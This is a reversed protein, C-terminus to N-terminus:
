PNSPRRGDKAADAHEEIQAMAVQFLDDALERLKKADARAELTPWAGNDALADLFGRALAQEKLHAARTAARWERFILDKSPM